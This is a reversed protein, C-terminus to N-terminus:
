MPRLNNVMVNCQAQTSQFISECSNLYQTHQNGQYQLQATLSQSQTNVVNNWTVFDGQVDRLMKAADPDADKGVAKNLNMVKDATLDDPTGPSGDPKKAGLDQSMKNLANILNTQTNKDLWDPCTPPNTGGTIADYFEKSQDVFSQADGQSINGAKNAINQISSLVGSSASSINMAASTVGMSQGQVNMAQPMVELEAVQFAQDAHGSKLLALMKAIAAHLDGYANNYVDVAPKYQKVAENFDDMPTPTPDTSASPASATVTNTATPANGLSNAFQVTVAAFSTLTATDTAPAAATIPSSTQTADVFDDTPGLEEPAAVPEQIQISNNISVLEITESSVHEVAAM